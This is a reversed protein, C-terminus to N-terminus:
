IVGGRSNIPMQHHVNTILKMSTDDASRNKCWDDLSNTNKNNNLPWILGGIKKAIKSNGKLM